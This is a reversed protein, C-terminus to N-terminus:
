RLDHRYLIADEIPNSYYSKRRGQQQFGANEYLCRAPANSERVELFVTQSNTERAVAFLSALLRKGIGRRQAAPAVVINELEWDPALHCAVLFGSLSIVSSIEHESVLALSHAPGDASFLRQYQDRSWQAASPSVAALSTMWDVDDPTAARIKV